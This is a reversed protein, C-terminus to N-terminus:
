QFDSWPDIDVPAPAGPVQGIGGLSAFADVPKSAEKLPASVPSALPPVPSAQVGWGPNSDFLSTSVKAEVPSVIPKSVAQTPEVSVSAAFPNSLDLLNSPAPTSSISFNAFSNELPKPAAPTANSLTASPGSHTSALSVTPTTTVPKIPANFGSFDAFDNMPAPAPPVSGLNTLSTTPSTFSTFTTQKPSPTSYLSMINAKFDNKAPVPAATPNVTTANGTTAPGQNFASFLDNMPSSQVAVPVPPPARPVPPNTPRPPAPGAASVTREPLPPRMQAIPAATM